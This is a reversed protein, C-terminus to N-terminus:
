KMFMTKIWFIKNWKVYKLKLLWPNLRPFRRIISLIFYNYQFTHFAMIKSKSVDKIVALIRFNIISILSSYIEFWIIMNHTLKLMEVLLFYCSPIVKKLAGPSLWPPRPAKRNYYRLLHNHSQWLKFSLNSKGHKWQLISFAASDTM